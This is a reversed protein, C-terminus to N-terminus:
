DLDKLQSTKMLIMWYKLAQRDPSLDMKLQLKPTCGAFTDGLEETKTLVIIASPYVVASM